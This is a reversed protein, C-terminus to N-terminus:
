KLRESLYKHVAAINDQVPHEPNILADMPLRLDAYASNLDNIELRGATQQESVWTMLDGLSQPADSQPQEQKKGFTNAAHNTQPADEIKDALLEGAYWEDYADEDVGQRKKWQGKKKGSGYFPQAAKACFERNFAVGKEDVETSEDSAAPEDEANSTAEPKGGALRQINDYLTETPDDFACGDEALAAAVQAPTAPKDTRMEYLAYARAFAVACKDVHGLNVFKAVITKFEAGAEYPEASADPQPQEDAYYAPCGQDDCVGPGECQEGVPQEVAGAAPAPSNVLAKGQGIATLAQGIALAIDKRDAPFEIKITM